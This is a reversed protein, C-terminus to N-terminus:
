SIGICDVGGTGPCCCFAGTGPSYYKPLIKLYLVVNSSNEFFGIATNRYLCYAKQPELYKSYINEYLSSHKADGIINTDVIVM